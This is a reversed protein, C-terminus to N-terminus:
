RGRYHKTKMRVSIAYLYFPANFIVACEIRDLSLILMKYKVNKRPALSNSLFSLMKHFVCELILLPQAKGVITFFAEYSLL